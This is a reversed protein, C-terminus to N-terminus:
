DRFIKHTGHNGRDQLKKEILSEKRVSSSRVFEIEVGSEKAIKEANLKLTTRFPEAFTAYDFIRINNRSMYSGLHQANSLVPLTGTIVIRDYCSLTGAIDNCYRETLLEM